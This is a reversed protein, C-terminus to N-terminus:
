SDSLGILHKLYIHLRKKNENKKTYTQTHTHTYSVLTDTLRSSCLHPMLFFLVVLFSIFEQTTLRMRNQIFSIIYPASPVSIYLLLTGIYTFSTTKILINVNFSVQFLSLFGTKGEEDMITVHNKRVLVINM